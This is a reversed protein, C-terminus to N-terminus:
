GAIESAKTSIVEYDTGQISGYLRTAEREARERTNYMKEIYVIEDSNPFKVKVLFRERGGKSIYGKSDKTVEVVEFIGAPYHLKKFSDVRARFQEETSKEPKRFSILNVESGVQRIALSM